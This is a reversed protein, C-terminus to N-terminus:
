FLMGSGWYVLSLRVTGVKRGLTMVSARFWAALSFKAMGEGIGLRLARLSPGRVRERQSSAVELAWFTSTM